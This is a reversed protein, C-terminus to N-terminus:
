MYKGMIEINVEKLFLSLEKLKKIKEVSYCYGNESKDYLDPNNMFANIIIDYVISKEKICAM